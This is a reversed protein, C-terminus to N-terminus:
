IRRKQKGYKDKVEMLKRLLSVLLEGMFPSVRLIHSVENSKFEFAYVTNGEEQGVVVEKYVILDGINMNVSLVFERKFEGKM